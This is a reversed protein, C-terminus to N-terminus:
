TGTCLSLHIRARWRRARNGDAQCGGLSLGNARFIVRLTGPVLEEPRSRKTGHHAMYGMDGHRGLKLWENLHQEDEGLQTSTIGVATFGLEQAATKIQQALLKPDPSM